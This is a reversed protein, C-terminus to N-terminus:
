FISKISKLTAIAAVITPILAGVKQLTTAFNLFATGIDIVANALGSDVVAVSLEQFQAKFKDIHAQISDSYQSFATELAGASDGMLRMAKEAENFNEVLSFFINQMRTGALTEALAAYDNPSTAKLEQAVKAIDSMIDYTNRLNGQDDTLSVKYKTLAQVINNYEADSMAEGLEDLETKTNRIRAVITRLGTSSKSIDQITANSAALLALSQEYSNGAAALASGANNLGEALEKVSVPLNNGVEVLKDFVSEIQATDTADIKFAKVISTVAAQVSSVDIDGVKSIMTTYKALATSEDLSYGLRAYVTASNIVDTMSSSTQKAVAAATSGFQRMSASSAKTVIQMQTMATDINVAENVMQKMTRITTMIVQSASLWTSFKQAMSTFNKSWSKHADDNSKIVRTSDKFTAIYEDLKKRAEDVDLNSESLEARFAELDKLLTVYDGYASRSGAKNSTAAASFNTMNNRVKDQLAITEKVLKAQREAEKKASSTQDANRKNTLEELWLNYQRQQDQMELALKAGLSKSGTSQSLSAIAGQVREYAEATENLEKALHSWSGEGGADNKSIYKGNEKVIDTQLTELKKLAEFYEKIAKSNEKYLAAAKRSQAEQQSGTGGGTISGIKKVSNAARDARDQISKLVKDISDLSSQASKSIEFEVNITHKNSKEYKSFISNLDKEFQSFDINPNVGVTLLVDAM